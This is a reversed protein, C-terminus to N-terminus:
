WAVFLHKKEGWSAAWFENFIDSRQHETFKNCFRNNAKFCFKSSCTNDLVRSPRQVNHEVVNNKRHYGVYTKGSMRLKQMKERKWEGKNAKVSRKEVVKAVQQELNSIDTHIEEVQHEADAINM